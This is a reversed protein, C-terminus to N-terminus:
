GQYRMYPNEPSWTGDAEFGESELLSVMHPNVVWGVLEVGPAGHAEAWTWAESDYMEKIARLLARAIGRRRAQPDVALSFRYELPEGPMGPALGGVAAGYVQETRPDICAFIPQEYSALRIGGQVFLMDTPDWGLEEHEAGERTSVVICGPERRAAAGRRRRPDYRKFFRM